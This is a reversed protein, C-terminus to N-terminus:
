VETVGGTSVATVEKATIKNIAFDVASNGNNIFDLTIGGVSEAVFTQTGVTPQITSISGGGAWVSMLGSPTVTDTIEITIEYSNGATLVDQGMRLTAGGATHFLCESGVQSVEEGPVAEGTITWNDPDGGTWNVFSGNVVVDTGENAVGTAFDFSPLFTPDNLNWYTGTIGGDYNIIATRIDDPDWGIVNSVAQQFDAVWSETAASAGSLDFIWLSGFTAEMHNSGVGDQAFGLRIGTAFPAVLTNITNAPLVNLNNIDISFYASNTTVHFVSFFSHPADSTIGTLDVNAVGNWLTHYGHTTAITSLIPSNNGAAEASWLRKAGAVWKPKAILLVGFNGGGAELDFLQTTSLDIYGSSGDTKLGSLVLDDGYRARQRVISDPNYRNRGVM